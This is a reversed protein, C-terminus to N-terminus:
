NYKRLIDKFSQTNFSELFKIIIYKIKNSKFNIM